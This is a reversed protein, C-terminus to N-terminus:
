RENNSKKKVEIFRLTVNNLGEASETIAKIIPDNSPIKKNELQDLVVM